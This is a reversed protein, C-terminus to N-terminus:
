RLQPADTFALRKEDLRQSFRAVDVVPKKQVTRGPTTEASAILLRRSPLIEM